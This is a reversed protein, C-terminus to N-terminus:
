KWKKLIYIAIKWNILTKPINSKIIKTIINYLIIQFLFYLIYYILFIPSKILKQLINNKTSFLTISYCKQLNLNAKNIQHIFSWYLIPSIHWFDNPISDFFSPSWCFVQYIRSFFSHLNPTTIIIEWSEKTIKSLEKLFLQTNELHEIIEICVILDYNKSHNISFNDNLNACIFNKSNYKYNQKNIDSSTINKYGLDNLRYDFAWTWAWLVLIEINKKFKTNIYKAVEQHVWDECHITLWKYDVGTNFDWNYEHKKNSM